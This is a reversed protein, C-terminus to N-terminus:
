KSTMKLQDIEAQMELLQNQSNVLLARKKEEIENIMDQKRKRALCEKNERSDAEKRKDLAIKYNRNSDKVSKLM